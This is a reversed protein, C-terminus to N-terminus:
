GRENHPLFGFIIGYILIALPNTLVGGVFIKKDLWDISFAYVIFVALIAYKSVITLFMLAINKKQFVLKWLLILLIFNLFSLSAGLIFSKEDGSTTAALRIGIIGFVVILINILIIFFLHKRSTM